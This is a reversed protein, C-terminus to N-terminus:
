NDNECREGRRSFGDRYIHWRGNGIHDYLKWPNNQEHCIFICDINDVAFYKHNDPYKNRFAFRFKSSSYDIGILHDYYFLDSEGFLSCKVPRETFISCGYQPHELIRDFVENTSLYNFSSFMGAFLKQPFFLGGVGALAAGVFGRRDM